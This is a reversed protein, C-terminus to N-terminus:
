HITKCVPEHNTLPDHFWNPTDRAAKFVFLVLHLQLRRPERFTPLIATDRFAHTVAQTPPHAPGRAFHTEQRSCLRLNRLFLNLPTLTPLPSHSPPQGSSHFNSSSQGWTLPLWSPSVPKRCLAALPLRGQLTVRAQRPATPHPQQAPSSVPLRPLLLPASTHPSCWPRESSGGRQGAEGPAPGQTDLWPM